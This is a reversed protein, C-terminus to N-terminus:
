RLRVYGMQERTEQLVVDYQEPCAYCTRVFVLGDILM